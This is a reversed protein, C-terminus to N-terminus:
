VLRMQGNNAKMELEHRAERALKRVTRMNGNHLAKLQKRWRLYAESFSKKRTPSSLQM